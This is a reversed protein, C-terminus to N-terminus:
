TGTDVWPMQVIQPGEETFLGTFIGILGLSPVPFSVPFDMPPHIVPLPVMWLPIVQLTPYMLILYNYWNAPEPTGLTYDLSLIGGSYSADLILTFDILCDPDAGDTLGDCDNDVLDSCDEVADPNILPDSDDCDDGGCTEDDYGDSDGDWCDCDPDLDDALGDCDNDVTDFCDEAAGPNIAPNSDDCDDGGCAEDDYGDSDGDWCSCEPDAWDIWGDCDNDILDFCDEAAGPNITPDSDDCDTGGCAEDSFGDEDADWCTVGSDVTLTYDGPEDKGAVLIVYSTDPSLVRSITEPHSVYSGKIFTVGDDQFLRIDFDGIGPWDLTIDITPEYGPNPTTFRYYDRDGTYDGSFGVSCLSGMATIASTVMGLSMAEAPTENPNQEMVGGSCSRDGDLCDDDIGNGCIETACPHISPNSDDCDDGWCVEDEYGDGDDDYCNPCYGYIGQIGEIDDEELTRESTGSGCAYPCMTSRSSCPGSCGVSTHDLGLAHGLEHAAVGQIDYISGICWSIGSDYFMIDWGNNVTYGDHITVALAGGSSETTAFVVNHGDYISVHEISTQGDYVFEFCAEGTYSWEEAGAQIAAIQDSDSGACTDAFNPNVEFESVGDVHHGLGPEWGHAAPSLVLALALCAPFLLYKQLNSKM